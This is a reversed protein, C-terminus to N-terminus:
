LIVTATNQVIGVADGIATLGHIMDAALTFLRDPKKPIINTSM